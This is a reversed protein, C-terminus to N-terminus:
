SAMLARAALNCRLRSRSAFRRTYGCNPCFKGLCQRFPLSEFGRYLFGTYRIELGMRQICTCGADYSLGSQM